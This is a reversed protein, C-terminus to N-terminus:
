VWKEAQAFGRVGLVSYGTSNEYLVRIFTYNLQLEAGLEPLPISHTQSESLILPHSSRVSLTYQVANKKIYQSAILVYAGPPLEKELVCAGRMFGDSEAIASAASLRKEAVSDESLLRLYVAADANELTEMRANLFTPRDLRFHYMPNTAYTIESPRGGNNDSKWEGAVRTLFHYKPFDSIPKVSGHVDNHFRVQISFNFTKLNRPEEKCSMVIVSYTFHGPPLMFRCLTYPANTFSISKTIVEAADREKVLYRPGETRYVQLSILIYTQDNGLMDDYNLYHRSLMIYVPNEYRATNTLDLVFQPCNSLNMVDKTYGNFVNTYCDHYTVSTNLLEPSWNVNSRDIRGRM